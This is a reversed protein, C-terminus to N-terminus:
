PLFARLWVEFDDNNVEGDHNHDSGSEDSGLDHVWRIYDEGDITGDRTSDGDTHETNKTLKIGDFWFTGKGTGKGVIARLRVAKAADNTEFTYSVHQWDTALVQADVGLDFGSSIRNQNILDGEKAQADFQAPIIRGFVESSGKEAAQVKYDYSITYTSNPEVAILPSYVEGDAFDSFDLRLSRRGLRAVESDCVWEFSGNWEKQIYLNDECIDTKGFKVVNDFYYFHSVFEWVFSANEYWKYSMRNNRDDTPEDILMENFSVLDKEPKWLVGSRVYHIYDQAQVAIDDTSFGTSDDKVPQSGYLESMLQYQTMGAADAGWDNKGTVGFGIEQTQDNVGLSIGVPSYHLSGADKSPPTFIDRSNSDIVKQGNKNIKLSKDGRSPSVVSIKEGKYQFDRFDIFEAMKQWVKEANHWYEPTSVGTISKRLYELSSLSFATITGYTPHPHFNHNDFLYDQYITQTSIGAYSEGKSLSHFGLVKAKEYFPKSEYRQRFILSLRDLYSAMWSNEEGASNGIYGDFPKLHSTFYQGEAMLHETISIQLKVDLDDWVLWSVHGLILGVISGTVCHKELLDCSEVQQRWRPYEGDVYSIVDIVKQLDQENGTRRYRVGHAGATILLSDYVHFLQEKYHWQPRKTSNDTPCRATTQYAWAYDVPCFDSERAKILKDIDDVSLDGYSALYKDVFQYAIEQSNPTKVQKKVTLSDFYYTNTDTTTNIGLNIRGFTQLEYNLAKNIRNGSLVALNNQDILGFAGLPTVRVTFSHWGKTRKIPSSLCGALDQTPCYTYNDKSVAPNVGLSIGGKKGLKPNTIPDLETIGLYVYGKPTELSDYFYVTVEGSVESEMSRSLVSGWSVGDHTIALSKKGQYYMEETTTFPSSPSDTQLRNWSTSAAQESPGDVIAIPDEFSDSFLLGRADSDGVSTVASVHTSSFFVISLLTLLMGISAKPSISMTQYTDM